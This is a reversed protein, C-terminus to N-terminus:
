YHNGDSVNETNPLRPVVMVQGGIAGDKPDEVHGLVDLRHRLLVTGDRSSVEGPFNFRLRTRPVDQLAQLRITAIVGSTRMPQQITGCEYLIRGTEPRVTNSRMWEFPFRDHYAGDMINTGYSIWNGEDYDIVKLYSPDFSLDLRIRDWAIKQPNELRVDIDFIKGAQVVQMGPDLVIRTQTEGTPLVEEEEATWEQGDPVKITINGSIVGDRGIGDKGLLNQWEKRAESEAVPTLGLFTSREPWEWNQDSQIPPELGKPWGTFSFRVATHAVPALARFRTAFLFGEQNCVVGVPTRARYYIIGEDPNVHNLYFRDEEEGRLLPFTELNKQSRDFVSPSESSEVPADILELLTPDYTLCCGVVDFERKLPNDVWVHVTAIEGVRLLQELPLLRMVLNGEFPLGTGGKEGEGQGPTGPPVVQRPGRQVPIPVVPRGPPQAAPPPPPAPVAPQAAPPQGPSSAPPQPLPQNRYQERENQWGSSPQNSLPDERDGRFISSRSRGSGFGQSQACETHSFFSALMTALVLLVVRFYKPRYRPDNIEKLPRSHSAKMDSNKIPKARGM